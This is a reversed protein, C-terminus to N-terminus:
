MEKATKKSRTNGSVSEKESPPNREKRKKRDMPCTICEEIFSPPPAVFGQPVLEEQGEKQAIDEFMNAVATCRFKNEVDKSCEQCCFANEDPLYFPDQCIQHCTKCFGGKISKFEKGIVPKREQESVVYIFQYLPENVVNAESAQFPVRCSPCNCETKSRSWRTICGKCFVHGCRLLVPKHIASQCIDCCFGDPVEFKWQPRAPFEPINVIYIFPNHEIDTEASPATEKSRMFRAGLSVRDGDKLYVTVNEAMRNELNAGHFSGNVASLNTFEVCEDVVYYRMTAHQRSLYAHVDDLLFGETVANKVKSRGVTVTQMPGLTLTSPNINQNLPVFQVVYPPPLSASSSAM